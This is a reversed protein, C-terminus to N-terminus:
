REIEVASNGVTRGKFTENKDLAELLELFNKDHKEEVTSVRRLFDVIETFGKEEAVKAAEPCFRTAEEHEGSIALKLNTRIDEASGLFEFAHKAHEAENKATASFMDAIQKFGAERAIDAFYLYHSNAQLEGASVKMLVEETKSGKLEM